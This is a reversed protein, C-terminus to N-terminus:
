QKKNKLNKNFIIRVTYKTNGKKRVEQVIFSTNWGLEFTAIIKLYYKEKDDDYELILNKDKIHWKGKGIISHPKENYYKDAMNFTNIEFVGNEKFSYFNDYDPNDEKLTLNRDNEDIVGDENEDIMPNSVQRIEEIFWKYKTIFTELKPQSSIVEDDDKCSVTAIAIVGLLMMALFKTTRM